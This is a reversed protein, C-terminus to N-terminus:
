FHCLGGGEFLRNRCNTTRGREVGVWLGTKEFLTTVLLRIRRLETRVRDRNQLATGEKEGIRETVHRGAGHAAENVVVRTEKVPPLHTELPSGQREELGARDVVVRGREVQRIRLDRTQL